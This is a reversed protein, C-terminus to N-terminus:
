KQCFGELILVVINNLMFYCQLVNLLFFLFLINGRRRRGFWRWRWLNLHSFESRWFDHLILFYLFDDLFILLNLVLLDIDLVLFTYLIVLDSRRSLDILALLHNFLLFFIIFVLDELFHLYLSRERATLTCPLFEELSVKTRIHSSFITRRRAAIR